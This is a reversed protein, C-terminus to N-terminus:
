KKPVAATRVWEALERATADEPAQVKNPIEWNIRNLVDNIPVRTQMSEKAAQAAVRYILAM